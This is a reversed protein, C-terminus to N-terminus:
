LFRWLTKLSRPLYSSSMHLFWKVKSLLQPQDTFNIHPTCFLLKGIWPTNFSINMGTFYKARAIWSGIKLEFSRIYVESICGCCIPAVSVYRHFIRNKSTSSALLTCGWEGSVKVEYLIFIEMLSKKLLHLWIRLFSRIQDCKSFFDKISFKM